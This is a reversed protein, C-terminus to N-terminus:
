RRQASMEQATKPPIPAPTQTHSRAKAKRIGNVSTPPRMPIPTDSSAGSPGNSEREGPHRRTANACTRGRHLGSMGRLEIEAMLYLLLIGGAVRRIKLNQQNSRGIFEDGGASQEAIVGFPDGLFQSSVPRKWSLRSSPPCAAIQASRRRAHSRPVPLLGSYVEPSPLFANGTPSSGVVKPKATPYRSPSRRLNEAVATSIEGTPDFTM